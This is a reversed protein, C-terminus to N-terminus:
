FIPLDSYVNKRIYLHCISIWFSAWCQYDDSFHLDFDCHSIVECWGFHSDDFFGSVIFAPSPTSLLVRRCQQHSYLNTCGSYQVTHHNRGYHWIVTIMCYPLKESQNRENLLLCKHNRWSKKPKITWKEKNSFLIGLCPPKVNVKDPWRSFLM